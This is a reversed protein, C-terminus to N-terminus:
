KKKVLIAVYNKPYGKQTYKLELELRHFFISFIMGFVKVLLLIPALIYGKIGRAINSPKVPLYLAMRNLQYASTGFYGELWDLRDIEFGEETFLKRLGFQTYRFFDYPIEHEEYFLPGTYIIKGGPKIVRNLERLVRGPEPLHEMVQNFLIYDFREDEVPIDKLDCIYTSRVYNKDVAEFDASEYKTHGLLDRYPQSGAGADLVLAGNPISAAFDMNEQRLRHRSSNFFIFNKLSNNM